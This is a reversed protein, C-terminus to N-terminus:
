PITRGSSNVMKVKHNFFYLCEGLYVTDGDCPFEITFTLCYSRAKKTIDTEIKKYYKINDGSRHWGLNKLKALTESYILPKLGM